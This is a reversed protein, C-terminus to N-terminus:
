SRQVTRRVFGVIRVVRRRLLNTPRLTALARRLKPRERRYRSKRSSSGLAFDLQKLNWCDAITCAKGRKM